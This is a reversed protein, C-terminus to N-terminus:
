FYKKWDICDTIVGRLVDDVANFVANKTKSGINVQSINLSARMEEYRSLNLVENNSKVIDLLRDCIVKTDEDKKLNNGMAAFIGVVVTDRSLWMTGLGGYQMSCIQDLEILFTMIEKVFLYDGNKDDGFVENDEQVDIILKNNITIPKKKIFSLAAGIINSFYYEGVKRNKSFEVASIEKERVIKINIHKDGSSISEIEPLLKIFLLELQHKNSVPKHGANFLLMKEVEEELTLNYWIEFWQRQTLFEEKFQALNTDYKNKYAEIIKSFTIFSSNIAALKDKYKQSLKLKSINILDEEKELESVILQYTDYIIKLRYSRQLGDLIKFEELIIKEDEDYKEEGGVLVIAPIHRKEIITDILKDLYKNAVLERQIEYDMFDDNLGEIYDRLTGECMLCKILGKKGKEIHNSLFKFKVM